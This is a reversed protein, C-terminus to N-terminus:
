VHVSVNTIYLVIIIIIYRLIKKLYTIETILSIKIVKQGELHPQHFAFGM